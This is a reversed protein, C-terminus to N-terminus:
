MRKPSDPVYVPSAGGRTPSQPTYAVVPPGFRQGHKETVQNIHDGVAAGVLGLGQAQAM